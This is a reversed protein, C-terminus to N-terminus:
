TFIETREVHSDFLWCFTIVRRVGHVLYVENTDRKFLYKNLSWKFTSLRREAADHWLNSDHTEGRPILKITFPENVSLFIRQITVPEKM